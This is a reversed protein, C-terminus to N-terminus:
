HTNGAGLLHTDTLRQSKGATWTDITASPQKHAHTGSGPETPKIAHMRAGYHFTVKDPAKPTGPNDWVGRCICFVSRAAESPRGQGRGKANFFGADVQLRPRSRVMDEDGAAGIEPRATLTISSSLHASQSCVPSTQHHTRSSDTICATIFDPHCTVICTSPVLRAWWGLRAAPALLRPSSCPVGTM